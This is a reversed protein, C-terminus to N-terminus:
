RRDCSRVVPRLKACFFTPMSRILAARVIALSRPMRSCGIREISGDEYTVTGRVAWATITDAATNRVTVVLWRDVVEAKWVPMAQLPDSQVSATFVASLVLASFALMMVPPGVALTSSCTM